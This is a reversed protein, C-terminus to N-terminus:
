GPDAILIYASVAVVVAIGLLILRDALRAYREPQLGIQERLRALANGIFAPRRRRVQKGHTTGRPPEGVVKLRNTPAEPGDDTDTQRALM